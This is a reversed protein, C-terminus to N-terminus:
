EFAYRTGGVFARADQNRLRGGSPVSLMSHQNDDPAEQNNDVIIATVLFSWHEVPHATRRFRATDSLPLRQAAQDPVQRYGRQWSGYGLQATCEADHV